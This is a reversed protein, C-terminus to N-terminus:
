VVMEEANDVYNTKWPNNYGPLVEVEEDFMNDIRLALQIDNAFTKIYGFSLNQLNELEDGDYSGPYERLSDEILLTLTISKWFRPDWSLVTM